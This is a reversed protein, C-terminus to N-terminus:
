SHEGQGRVHAVGQALFCRLALRRDGPSDDSLHPASEQSTMDLEGKEGDMSVGLVKIKDVFEIVKVLYGYALNHDLCQVTNCDYPDKEKNLM